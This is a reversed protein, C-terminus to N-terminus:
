EEATIVNVGTVEFTAKTVTDASGGQMVINDINFALDTDNELDYIFNVVSIYEGTVDFEVIPQTSNPTIKIKINDANAYSGVKMWLFDLLYQERKNAEAIEEVSASLTIDDYEKRKDSFDKKASQLRNVTRPYTVDNLRELEAIRLDLNENGEILANYSKIDNGFVPVGKAVATYIGYGLFVCLIFLLLKKIM